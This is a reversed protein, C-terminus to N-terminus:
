IEATAMPSNTVRPGRHTDPRTSSDGCEAGEVVVVEEVEEEGEGGGGM